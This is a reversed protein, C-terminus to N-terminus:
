DQAHGEPAVMDANFDGAVLMVGGCPRQRLASVVDEIISADYPALYYGVIYWRQGGLALQFSVVIAGHLRLAEVSFHDAECFLVGGGGSHASPVESAVDRYGSFERM